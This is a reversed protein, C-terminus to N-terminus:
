VKKFKGIKPEYVDSNSLLYNLTPDLETDKLGSEKLISNYDAGDGEDLREILSLVIPKLDSAPEEETDLVEEQSVTIGAKKARLLLELNRVVEWNPDEIETIIRPAIYTEEEYERLTGIVDVTDGVSVNAVMGKDEGFFRVSVTETADDLTLITFRESDYKSVVVGMVRVTFIQQGDYEIYSRNDDDKNLAREVADRIFVKFATRDDM